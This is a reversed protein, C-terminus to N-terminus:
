KTPLKVVPDLADLQPLSAPDISALAAGFDRANAYRQTHDFSLAKRLVPWLDTDALKEPVELHGRAHSFLAALKNEARVVPAGCLLEVLVLASQYVDIAPTVIQESAYEPAIYRPTGIFSNKSTLRKTSAKWYAIGFDLVCMSEDDEGPYRLFLNAPSLDKHIIGHDHALGLAEIVPLLLSWLRVPDFGGNKHLYMSVNAGQLLEVIMFPLQHQGHVGHGYIELVHPHQLKAIVLAEREFRQLFEELRKESSFGTIDLVKIAVLRGTQTDLAKLVLSFGGAGVIDIIRYRDQIMTGATLYHELIM